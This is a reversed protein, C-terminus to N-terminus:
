ARVSKWDYEHPDAMIRRIADRAEPHKSMYEVIDPAMEKREQGAMDYFCATEKDSLGLQKEWVRLKEVDPPNRRGKEIDCIYVTSVNIAKALDEQRLKRRERLERLFSGFNMVIEKVIKSILKIALNYCLNQNKDVCIVFFIPVQIFIWTGISFADNDLFIKQRQKERMGFLWASNPYFSCSHRIFARHHGCVTEILGIWISTTVQEM